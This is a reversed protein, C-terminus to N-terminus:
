KTYKKDKILQLTQEYFTINEKKDTSIIALFDEEQIELSELLYDLLEPNQQIKEIILKSYELQTKTLLAKGQANKLKKNLLTYKNM